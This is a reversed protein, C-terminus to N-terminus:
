HPSDREIEPEAVVRAFVSADVGGLKFQEFFIFLVDAAMAVNWPFLERRAPADPKEARLIGAQAKAPIKVDGPQVSIELIHAPHLDLGVREHVPQCSDEFARETRLHSELDKGGRERTQRQEEASDTREDCADYGCVEDRASTAHCKDSAREPEDAQSTRR